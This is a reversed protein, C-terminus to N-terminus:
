NLLSLLKADKNGCYKEVKLVSHSVLIEALGFFIRKWASPGPPYYTGKEHDMLVQLAGSKNPDFRKRNKAKPCADPALKEPSNKFLMKVYM